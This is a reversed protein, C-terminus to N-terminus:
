NQNTATTLGTLIRVFYESVGNLILTQSSESM